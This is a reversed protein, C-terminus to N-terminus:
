VNALRIKAPDVKNSPTSDLTEDATIVIIGTDYDVNASLINPIINDPTETVTITNGYNENSALDQM